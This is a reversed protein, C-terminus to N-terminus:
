QSLNTKRKKNRILTKERALTQSTSVFTTRKNAIIPNFPNSEWLTLFEERVEKKKKYEENEKLWFYKSCWAQNM